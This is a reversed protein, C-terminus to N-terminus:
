WYKLKFSPLIFHIFTKWHFPHVILYHSCEWSVLDEFFVASNVYKKKEISLYSLKETLLNSTLRGSWLPEDTRELEFTPEMWYEVTQICLLKLQWTSLCKNVGTSRCYFCSVLIRLFFWIGVTVSVNWTM